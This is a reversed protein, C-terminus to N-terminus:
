KRGVEILQAQPAGALNDETVVMLGLAPTKAWEAPSISVPVTTAGNQKVPVFLANSIAPTFANFSATGPLM